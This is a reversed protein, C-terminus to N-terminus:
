KNNLHKKNIYFYLSISAISILSVVIIITYSTDTETIKSILNSYSRNRVIYDGNSLVVEKGQNLAWAEFRLRANEIVYNNSTMFALRSSSSMNNFLIIAPNLKSTCQNNTDEFMIYNALNSESVEGHLSFSISMINSYYSSSTTYAIKFYRYGGKECESSSYPTDFDEGDKSIFLQADSRGGAKQAIELGVIDHDFANSNYIYGASKGFSLYASSYIYANTSVTFDIDDIKVSTSSPTGSSKSITSSAFEASSFSLSEPEIESFAERMVSVELTTELESYRITFEKSTAEGGSAADSYTFQYGNNTFTFDNIDNGFNDIVTIDSKSITEGVVYTKEVSATISTPVKPLTSHYTVSISTFKVQGNTASTTNGVHFTVSSGSISQSSGSAVTENSSDLLIGDNATTYNFTVSDLEYNTAASIVISASESQYFRWDNGNTYYKGTNSGGNGVSATIISDLSVSTYKQANTWSNDSAYSSISKTVAITDGEIVTVDCTDTFSGDHTTVTITAEGTAVGTVTGNSVTAVSTNSSSWTVAQDSANAPSISVALTKNQGVEVTLTSKDLSVSTVNVGADSSYGNITDTSPTAYGTPTSSYSVFTNGSYTATGWIYDVWEPFDIFPNRNNTFNKYLLNNRHIEFEDVPDAHHWALLDTLIGIKGTTSTTSQYGSSAWSTVNNVIELNPNNSDIGDSDSGSYYNYRAAMYFISRAIDGKDSDQPEFVTKGGKTKSLGSLNGSLNTYTNGMDTYNPDNVTDVYGYYYNSHQNNVKGNGAMLHMPDGRAGGSGSDEFGLAKPWVHERNIGWQSQNHDDWATTQNDVNRNVYLAHIYPNNKSNSSSSGYTYGTITNTKVNYTGYTTGSAPSKEWDRDTIEYIRWVNTGNEYSYYKQGNKLITKLNKLLNTGQRESTSLSSLSSYYSRIDSSSTDNLDITTPLSSADYADVKVKGTNKSNIALAISLFPLTLLAPTLKIIKTRM